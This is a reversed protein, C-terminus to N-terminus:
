LGFLSCLQPDLSEVGSPQGPQQLMRPFASRLLGTLVSRVGVSWGEGCFEGDSQEGQDHKVEDGTPDGLQDQRALDPPKMTVVTMPMTPVMMPPQIAVSDVIHARAAHEDGRAAPTAGAPSDAKAAATPM